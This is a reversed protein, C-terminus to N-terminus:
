ARPEIHTCIGIRKRDGNKKRFTENYQKKIQQLQVLM